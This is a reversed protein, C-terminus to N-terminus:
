LRAIMSCGLPVPENFGVHTSHSITNGSPHVAKLGESVGDDRLDRFDYRSGNKGDFSSWASARAASPKWTKGHMWFSLLGATGNLSLAVRSGAFMAACQAAGGSSLMPM